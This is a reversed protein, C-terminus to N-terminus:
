CSVTVHFPRDAAAGAADRTLVSVTKKDAGLETAV